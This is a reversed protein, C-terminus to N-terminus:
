IRQNRFGMLEVILKKSTIDGLENRTEFEFVIIREMDPQYVNVLRGGTLHKRLLMCFMPPQKPFERPESTISIRPISPNSSLFLRYNKGLSRISIIVSDKDPMYIKDTRGGALLGRLEKALYGVFIGDFAM